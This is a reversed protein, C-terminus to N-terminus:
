SPEFLRAGAKLYRTPDVPEGNVRTEYHLHPGTARGSSGVHGIVAGADIRQGAVVSANALHAYRTVFGGGHSVEVMTGYGGEAAAVSVVGAATAHVPTGYAERLDLGTHLAPRGYFPDVRPGFSSSVELVGGVPQRLPLREVLTRLQETQQLADQLVGADQEFTVAAGSLPVFPGGVDSTRVALAPVIGVQALATKIKALAHLAPERLSALTRGQDREASALAAAATPGVLVPADAEAHDDRAATNQPATDGAGEGHRLSSADLAPGEGAADFADPAVYATTAGPLRAQNGLLPNRGAAAPKRSQEVMSSGSGGAPAAASQAVLREVVAARAALRTSREELDRVTTELTRRDLLARSVQQDLQVSLGAIRDEYAYQAATQQAILTALLRDHFVFYLTAGLYWAALALIAACLAASSGSRPAFTRPRGGLRVTVAFWGGGGRDAQMLM